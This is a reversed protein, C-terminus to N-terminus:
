FDLGLRGGFVRPETVNVGVQDEEGPAFGIPSSTVQVDNEINRIYFGVSVRGGPARYTLNADSRTFGDQELQFADTFNSVVYGSDYRSALRLLIAGDNPLQFERAYEIRATFDSLKDITFGEWDTFVAGVPPFDMATRSGATLDTYEGSALSFGFRLTDNDTPTWTFDNEWGYTEIGATRTFIVPAGPAVTLATIQAEAYDYYYAASEWNLNPLIEGKFGLEYAILEEPDYPGVGGVAPDFDNFGGAKYGTAVSAYILTADTPKWDLGVRWTLKDEDASGLNPGGICDAPYMCMMGDRDLPGFAITAVRDVEDKSYRLGATMNLTDTLGYDAQGFIGLSEHETTGVVNFASIGAERTPAFVPSDWRHDSEDIEEKHRHFGLIWNLRGPNENAFRIEHQTTQNTGTYQGWEWVPPPGPPGPPFSPLLTQASFSNTDYDRYGFLYTLAVGSFATNFEATVNFFDEDIGPFLADPVGFVSRGSEGNASEVTIVENAMVGSGLPVFNSIPVQGTGVGNIEGFTSSVFLSTSDSIDYLGSLRFSLDDQDNFAQDADRAPLYGDRENYAVAGRFALNDAVPVNVAAEVRKTEFNGYEVDVSAGFESDPRKSIINIVGGTTSRGYLTGQPGRLVEIREIDFFATGMERPRGIAVGDVNVAIGQQGKSTIDTTTVGRINITVGLDGTGIQVSPAVNQLDLITEVGAENLSDGSLVSVALPTDSLVTERKLATVTIVDRESADAAPGDQAQVNAATAFSLALTSACMMGRKAITNHKM